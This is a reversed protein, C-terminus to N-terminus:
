RVYVNKMRPPRGIAVSGELWDLLKSKLMVDLTDLTELQTRDISTQAAQARLREWQEFRSLGGYDLAAAM